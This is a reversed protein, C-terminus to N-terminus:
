VYQQKKDQLNVTELVYVLMEIDFLVMNPIIIKLEAYAEQM